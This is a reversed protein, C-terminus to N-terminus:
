MNKASCPKAKINCQNTGYEVRIYGNEGWSSAWSNKIIWYPTPPAMDYGVILVGHDLQSGLCNKMIGSIYTQWTLADVAIAIPGHKECWNAMSEESNPLDYHGSFKAVKDKKAIANNCTGTVGNGSTYPYEEETAIGGNSAVYDFANDMWGGQCGFDGNTACQVLEEESLGILTHGSLFWQGEMNGTASFTWCSGCMGQNKVPTVAGKTRWDVSGTPASAKIHPVHSNQSRTTNPLKAGLYTKAFEEPCMDSFQNVGHVEEGKANREDILKLIRRFCEFRTPYEMPAYRRNYTQRFDEFLVLEDDLTRSAAGSALLLVALIAAKM